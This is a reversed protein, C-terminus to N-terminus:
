HTYEFRRRTVHPRTAPACPSMKFTCVSAHRSGCVPGMATQEPTAGHGNRRTQEVIRLQTLAKREQSGREITMHVNREQLKPLGGLKKVVDASYQRNQQKQHAIANFTSKATKTQRNSFRLLAQSKENGIQNEPNTGQQSLVGVSWGCILM